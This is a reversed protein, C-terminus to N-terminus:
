RRELKQLWLFGILAVGGWAGLQWSLDAAARRADDVAGGVARGVAAPADVIAQGASAGAAEAAQGATVIHQPTFGFVDPLIPTLMADFVQGLWDANQEPTLDAAAM